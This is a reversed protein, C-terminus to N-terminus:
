AATLAGRTEAVGSRLRGQHHRIRARLQRVEHSARGASGPALKMKWRSVANAEPRAETRASSSAVAPAVNRALLREVYRRRGRQSRLDTRESSISASRRSGSCPTARSSGSGGIRFDGARWSGIEGLHRSRVARRKAWGRAGVEGREGHALRQRM